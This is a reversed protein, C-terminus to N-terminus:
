PFSYPHLLSFPISLRAMSEALDMFRLFLLRPAMAIL